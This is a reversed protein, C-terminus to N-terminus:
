ITRAPRTLSPARSYIMGIVCAVVLVVIPLVLDIVKGKTDDPDDEMLGAYPNSGSFLDGTQFANREFKLMPGFEVKMLVMAVMM